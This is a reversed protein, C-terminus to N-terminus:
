AAIFAELVQAFRGPDDLHPFHGAGEFLEVQSGVFAKGAAKAHGVPIMRDKTGWVILTPIPVTLPLHDHATVTQRRRAKQGVELGLPGM